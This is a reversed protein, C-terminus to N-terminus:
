NSSFVLGVAAGQCADQVTNSEAMYIQAGTATSLYDTPGPPINGNVSVPVNHFGFWAANCGIVDTNTDGPTSEVYGNAPDYAVAIGISGVHANVNGLNTVTFNIPQAAGGPYLDIAPPNSVNFQVAPINWTSGFGNNGVAATSYQAFGSGLPSNTVEGPGIDGQTGAVFVTGPTTDHGVTVNSPETSLAVNLSSADGVASYAIGYVFNAPLVFNQSSFDFTIPVLLGHYCNASYATNDTPCGTSTPRFPINFTKTVSAIAAGTPSNSNYINLTIPVQYFSGPTTVCGGYWNGTQCAWSSMDVVVTSLPSSSVVPTVQNGLETAGTGGFSFSPTNGPQPAITSDYVTMGDQHISLNAATGVQASGTGGGPSTFFAYAIGGASIAVVMAITTVSLKRHTKFFNM